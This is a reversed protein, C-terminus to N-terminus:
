IRIRPGAFGGIGPAYFGFVEQYDEDILNEIRAFVELNDSLRYSGLLNILVFDDLTM